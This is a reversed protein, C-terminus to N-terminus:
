RRSSLSGLWLNVATVAMAMHLLIALNYGCGRVSKLVWVALPVEFVLIEDYSPKHTFLTSSELHNSTPGYLFWTWIKIFDLLFDM